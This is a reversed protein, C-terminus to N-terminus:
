SLMYKVTTQSLTGTFAEAYRLRHVVSYRPRGYAGEVYALFVESM